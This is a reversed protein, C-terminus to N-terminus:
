HVPRDPYPSRARAEQYTEADPLNRSRNLKRYPKIKEKTQKMTEFFKIPNSKPMLGEFVPSAIVDSISTTGFMM